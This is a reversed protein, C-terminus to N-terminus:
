QVLEKELVEICKKAYNYLKKLDKSGDKKNHRASYKIINGILFGMFAEKSMWSEMADWPEISLAKYHEDIQKDHGSSIDGTSEIDNILTHSIKEYQKNNDNM